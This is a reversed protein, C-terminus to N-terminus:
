SPTYYCPVYVAQPDGGPPVLGSMNAQVELFQFSNCTEPLCNTTTPDTWDGGPLYCTRNEFSRTIYNLGVRGSRALTMNEPVITPNKTRVQVGVTVSQKGPNATLIGTSTFTIPASVTVKALTGRGDSARYIIDGAGAAAALPPDPKIAVKDGVGGDPFLTLVTTASTLQLINKDDLAITDTNSAGGPFITLVDEAANLQLIDKDDLAIKDENGTGGPFITLTNPTATNWKLIKKGDLGYTSM